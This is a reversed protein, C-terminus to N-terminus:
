QTRSPHERVDTPRDSGLNLSVVGQTHLGACITSLTAALHRPVNVFLQQGSRPFVIGVRVPENM